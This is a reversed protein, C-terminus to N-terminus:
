RLRFKEVKGTGTRPLADIALIEDPMKFRALKGECFSQLDDVTPATKGERPQIFAVLREGLVPDPKAVVAVAAVSPHGGIVSEVELSSINEGGRRVIDKKRDAFYFYGDKDFYGMDGTHFWKGTLVSRTAE